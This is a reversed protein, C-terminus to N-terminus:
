TLKDTYIDASCKGYQLRVNKSILWLHRIQL